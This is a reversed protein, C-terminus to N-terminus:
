VPKFIVSIPIVKKIFLHDLILCRSRNQLTWIRLSGWKGHCPPAERRPNEEGLRSSEPLCGVLGDRHVTSQWENRDSDPQRGRCSTRQHPLHNTQHRVEPRSGRKYCSRDQRCSTLWLLCKHHYQWRRSRKGYTCPRFDSEWSLGSWRSWPFECATVWALELFWVNGHM